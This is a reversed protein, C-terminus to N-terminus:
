SRSLMGLPVILTGHRCQCGGARHSGKSGQSKWVLARGNLAISDCRLTTTASRLLLSCCFLTTSALPQMTRAHPLTPLSLLPLELYCMPGMLYRANTQAQLAIDKVHQTQLCSHQNLCQWSGKLHILDQKLQPLVACAEVTAAPVVDKAEDLGQPCVGLCDHGVPM